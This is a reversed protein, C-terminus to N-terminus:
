AGVMSIVGGPFVKHLITDASTKQKAADDSDAKGKRKRKPKEDRVVGALVPVDRLMPTIEEKSYGEADEVTPQVVLIPCPDQSMYFAIAANMCKTYGIRASKMISVRTIAPDTIADLIGRQYPLTHWRGPDAASVASLVFHRDAWESLSLKPPPRLTEYADEIWSSASAM